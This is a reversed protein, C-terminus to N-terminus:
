YYKIQKATASRILEPFFIKMLTKFLVVIEIYLFKIKLVQKICADLFILNKKKAIQSINKQLFYLNEVFNGYLLFHLIIIPTAYTVRLHKWYITIYRTRKQCMQHDTLSFISFIHCFIFFFGAKKLFRNWKLCWQWYGFGPYEPINGSGDSVALMSQQITKRM